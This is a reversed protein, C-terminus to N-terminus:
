WLIKVDYNSFETDSTINDFGESLAQAIIIRDFPDKHLLPITLLNLVHTTQIGLIAINDRQIQEIFSSLPQTLKLKGISMKISMEWLFAVSTFVQVSTDEIVSKAEPSLQNNGEVFWILAQTDILYRM